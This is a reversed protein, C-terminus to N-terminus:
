KWRVREANTPVDLVLPVAGTNIALTSFAVAVVRRTLHQTIRIQRPLSADGLDRFKEFREELFLKGKPDLHQIKAILLTGPDIWYRRSGADRRYTLVFQNEEVFLSDPPSDDGAFFSGGTFLSLLEDFTLNVRFIRNLNSANVSGSILQNQFSNYFHFDTRTLLVSGVNIGFPGEVKVLISDPKHLLLEFSGSQAMEPSEVSITGSGKLSLVKERNVKVMQQVMAPSVTRGALNVTPVSACGSLLFLVCVCLIGQVRNM